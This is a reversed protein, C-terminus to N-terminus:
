QSHRNWVLLYLCFLERKLELWKLRSQQKEFLFDSSMHSCTICSIHFTIIHLFLSSIILACHKKIRSTPGKLILTLYKINGHEQVMWVTPTTLSACGSLQLCAKWWCTAIGRLIVRVRGATKAVKSTWLFHKLMHKFFIVLNYLNYVYIACVSHWCIIM